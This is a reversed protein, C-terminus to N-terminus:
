AVEANNEGQAKEDHVVIPMVIDKHSNNAVLVLPLISSNYGITIEDDTYSSIFDLINKANVNFNIDIDANEVKEEVETNGDFDKIIIKSDKIKVSIQTEYLSAEKILTEFLNKDLTVKQSFSQPVIRQWSPFKGNILKTSYDITDTSVTLSTEDVYASVDLSAFLRIISGISDKPIIIEMDENETKSSVLSLRTTDTGVTNLTGNNISILVGNLEYKPMNVGVSHVVKKFNEILSDSIDLTKGVNPIEVKQVTGFLNIKYTSRGAKVELMDKDITLTINETKIAKLTTLLKKVDISFPNINELTMDSSVFPIKKVVVTQVYNTASFTLNGSEGSITLKGEYEGDRAVYSSTTAVANLIRITNVNIKM